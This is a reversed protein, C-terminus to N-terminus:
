TDAIPGLDTLQIFARLWLPLCVKSELALIGANDIVEALLTDYKTTESLLAYITAPNSKLHSGAKFIRSKLSGERSSAPSLFSAADYYLSMARHLPSLLVRPDWIRSRRTFSGGASGFLKRCSVSSKIPGARVVVSHQAPTVDTNNIAFPEKHLRSTIRIADKNAVCNLCIAM